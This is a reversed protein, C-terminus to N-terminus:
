RGRSQWARHDVGVSPAGRRGTARRSAHRAGLGLGVPLLVTIPLSPMVVPAHNGEAVVVIGLAALALVVATWHASKM